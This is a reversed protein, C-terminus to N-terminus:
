NPNAETEKKTIMYGQFKRLKLWFSCKIPNLRMNFKGLRNFVDWLNQLHAAQLSSKVVMDNIYVETTTDTKDRFVMNIFKQYTAGAYKLGFSVM